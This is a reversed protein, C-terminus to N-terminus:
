LVMHSELILGLNSMHMAFVRVATNDSQGVDTNKFTVFMISSM